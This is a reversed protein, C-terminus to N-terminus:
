DQHSCSDGLEPKIKRAMKDQLIEENKSHNGCLDGHAVVFRHSDANPQCQCEADTQTQM